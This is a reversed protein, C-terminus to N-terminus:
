QSNEVWFHQTSKYKASDNNGDSLVMNEIYQETYCIESIVM